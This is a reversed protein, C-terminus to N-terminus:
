RENVRKVFAEYQEPTDIGQHATEVGIAGIPQGHELIRLQELQEAQEAPTPEMSAYLKLFHTRYAYIGLHKLFGPMPADADRRHPIVSRSFYLCRGNKGVVVKVVNPNDVSEGPGFPCVVTAVMDGAVKIREILRDIVNPDIEPEDGQVNVIIDIGDPLSAAAEAIRSSGNPHDARTMVATFGHAEVADAIRQDDTAILVLKATKAEAAQEAVHVILPKGTQDLLPKGPLRTSAYRAPIIVAAQM